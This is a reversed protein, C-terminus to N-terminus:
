NLETPVITVTQLAGNRVIELDVRRDIRAATMSAQLDGASLISEGDVAVVIDEPALGAVAAPSGPVVEIVEVGDRRGLSESVRPPLPRMGGAIGLYARRIRGESILSSIIQRTIRNIPVALGLGQGIPSGVVATNVGVVRGRSDALAGGSNGPHLAADTQIVNEVLRVNRGDRAPMSRGTASVVGATVTGAFGLPSGVAIVLQGVRLEDADGLEVPTLDSAGLRLVALDSLRDRGVVEFDYERGDSLGANGRGAREIVHASTVALGDATFAFASGSGVRSRNEDLPEVHIVSPTVREAVSVVAESYADLADM